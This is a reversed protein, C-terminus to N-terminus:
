RADEAAALSHAPEIRVAKTLWQAACEADAQSAELAAREFMALDLDQEELLARDFAKRAEDPRALEALLQGRHLWRAASGDDQELARDVQSLADELNGVRWYLLGQAHDLDAVPVLEDERAAERAEQLAELADGMRGANRVVCSKLYLARSRDHGQEAAHELCDLADDDRGARHLLVGRLLWQQGTLAEDPCAELHALLDTDDGLDFGRIEAVTAEFHPDYM